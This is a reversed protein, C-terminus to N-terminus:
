ATVEYRELFDEAPLRRFDDLASRLRAHDWDWWALDLLRDCIRPFDSERYLKAARETGVHTFGLTSLFDATVTFGLRQGIEGLKITRGNDAAKALVASAMAQVALPSTLDVAPKDEESRHGYMIGQGIAHMEDLTAPQQVLTPQETQAAQQAQAAAADRAM